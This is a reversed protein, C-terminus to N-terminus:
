KSRKKAERIFYLDLGMRVVVSMKLGTEKCHERLKEMRRKDITFNQKTMNM